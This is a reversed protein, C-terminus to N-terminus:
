ICHIFQIFCERLGWIMKLFSTFMQNIDKQFLNWANKGESVWHVSGLNFKRRIFQPGGKTSSLVYVRTIKNNTRWTMDPEAVRHVAAPWAERDDGPKQLKSLNMDQAANNKPVSSKVKVVLCMWLQADNRSQGLQTMGEPAILLQRGSKGLLINFVKWGPPEYELTTDKQRNMSNM